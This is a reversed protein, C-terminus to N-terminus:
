EVGNRGYTLAWEEWIGGKLNKTKSLHKKERVRGWKEWMDSGM